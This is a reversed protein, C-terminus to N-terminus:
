PVLSDDLLTPFFAHALFIAVFTPFLTFFLPAYRYVILSLSFWVRTMSLVLDHQNDVAVSQSCGLKIHQQFDGFASETDVAAKQKNAACFLLRSHLDSLM